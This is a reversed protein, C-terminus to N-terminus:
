PTNQLVHLVGVVDLRRLVSQTRSKPRPGKLQARLGAPPVPSHWADSRDPTFRARAGHIAPGKPPNRTEPKRSRECSTGVLLDPKGLLCVSTPKPSRYKAWITAVGRKTETLRRKSFGAFPSPQSDNNGNM